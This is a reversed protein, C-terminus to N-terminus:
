SHTMSRMACPLQKREMLQACLTALMTRNVHSVLGLAAIKAENFITKPGYHVHGKAEHNKCKQSSSLHVANPDKNM